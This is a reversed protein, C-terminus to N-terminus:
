LRALTLPDFQGAFFTRVLEEFIASDPDSHKPDGQPLSEVARTFLTMSSKLKLDDPWEMIQEIPKLKHILLLRCCERLRSGLVPHELYAQAERLSSIAFRAAMPSSGLGAIQPFIFWIWHSTKRGRRLEACVQEYVGSQADVFRQLNFPDNPATM